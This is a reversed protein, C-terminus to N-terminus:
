QLIIGRNGIQMCVIVKETLTTGKTKTQMHLSIGGSAMASIADLDGNCRGGHGEGAHLQATSAGQASYSGLMHLQGVDVYVYILMAVSMGTYPSAPVRM